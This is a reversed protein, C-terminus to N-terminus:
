NQDGEGEGGGEGPTPEPTKEETKTPSPTPQVTATQSPSASPGYSIEGIQARYTDTHHLERPGLQEGTNKDYKIKYVEVVIRNKREKTM